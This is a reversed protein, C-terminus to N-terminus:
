APTDREDTHSGTGSNPEVGGIILLATLCICSTTPCLASPLIAHLKWSGSANSGPQVTAPYDLKEWNQWCGMHRYRSQVTGTINGDGIFATCIGIALEDLLFLM